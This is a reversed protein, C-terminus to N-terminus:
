SEVREAWRIERIERLAISRDSRRRSTGAVREVVDRLHAWGDGLEVIAEYTPSTNGHTGVLVLGRRSRATM